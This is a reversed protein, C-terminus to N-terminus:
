FLVCGDGRSCCSSLHKASFCRDLCALRKSGGSLPSLILPLSSSITVIDSRLQSLVTQLFGLVSNLESQCAPLLWDFGESLLKEESLSLGPSTEFVEAVGDLYSSLPGWLAQRRPAEPTQKLTLFEKATETFSSALWSAM